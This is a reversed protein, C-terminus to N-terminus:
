TKRAEWKSRKKWTTIKESMDNRQEYKGNYIEGRSNTNIYFVNPNDGVL